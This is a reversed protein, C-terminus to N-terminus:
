QSLLAINGVNGPPKCLKNCYFDHPQAKSTCGALVELVGKYVVKIVGSTFYAGDTFYAKLADM